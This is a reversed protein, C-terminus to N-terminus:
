TVTFLNKLVFVMTTLVGFLFGFWSVIMTRLGVKAVQIGARYPHPNEGSLSIVMAQSFTAAIISVGFSALSVVITAKWKPHPFVKELFAIQLVVAGTSLNTVHRLYDAVLTAYAPPFNKFIKITQPPPQSV